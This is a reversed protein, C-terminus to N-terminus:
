EWRRQIQPNSIIMTQQGAVDLNNKEGCCEGGVNVSICRFKRRRRILNGQLVLFQGDLTDLLKVNVARIVLVFVLGKNVQVTKKGHARRYNEDLDTAKKEEHQIIRRIQQLGTDRSGLDLLAHDLLTVTNCRQGTADLTRLTVSDDIFETGPLRLDQDRGVNKGSTNVNGGDGHNDVVYTTRV